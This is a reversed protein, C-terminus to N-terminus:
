LGAKGYMGANNDHANTYFVIDHAIELYKEMVAPKRIWQNTVAIWATQTHCELFQALPFPSYTDKEMKSASCASSIARALKLRTTELKCKNVMIRKDIVKSFKEEADSPADISLLIEQQYEDTSTDTCDGPRCKMYGPNSIIKHSSDYSAKAALFIKEALSFNTINGKAQAIVDELREREKENWVAVTSLCTVGAKNATDTTTMSAELLDTCEEVEKIAGSAMLKLLANLKPTPTQDPKSKLDIKLQAAAAQFTQQFDIMSLDGMVADQSKESEAASEANVTARAAALRNATADPM